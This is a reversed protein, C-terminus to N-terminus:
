RPPDLRLGDVESGASSAVNKDALEARLQNVEARLRAIEGEATGAAPAAGAAGPRECRGSTTRMMLIMSLPCALVVLVPALRGFSSPALVFLAVGAAALAALVKRNFCMM